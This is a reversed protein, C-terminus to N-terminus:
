DIKIQKQMIIYKFKNKKCTVDFCKRSICKTKLQENFIRLQNDYLTPTATVVLVAILTIKTHHSTM